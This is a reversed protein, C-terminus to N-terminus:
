HVITTVFLDFFSITILKLVQIDKLTMTGELVEILLEHNLVSADMTDEVRQLCSIGEVMPMYTQLSLKICNEDIGIVKLGTL